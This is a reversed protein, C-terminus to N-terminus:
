EYVPREVCVWVKVVKCGSSLCAKWNYGPLDICKLYDEIAFKRLQRITSVILYGQYTIGWGVYPINV